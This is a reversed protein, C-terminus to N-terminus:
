GLLLRKTVNINWTFLLVVIAIRARVCTSTASGSAVFVFTANSGIYRRKVQSSTRAWEMITDGYVGCSTLPLNRVSQQQSGKLIQLQTTMQLNLRKVVLVKLFNRIFDFVLAIVSCCSAFCWNGTARHLTTAESPTRGNYCVCILVFISNTNRENIRPLNFSKSQKQLTTLISIWSKSKTFLDVLEYSQLKCGYLFLSKCNCAPFHM